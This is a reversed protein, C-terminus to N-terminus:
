AKPWSSEKEAARLQQYLSRQTENLEEPIIIWVKAELNGRRKGSEL